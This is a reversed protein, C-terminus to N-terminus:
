PANGGGTVWQILHFMYFYDWYDVRNQGHKEDGYADGGKSTDGGKTDQRGVKVALIIVRM